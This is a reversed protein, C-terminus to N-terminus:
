EQPNTTPCNDDWQAFGGCMPCYWSKDPQAMQHNYQERDLCVRGCGPRVLGEEPPYPGDGHCIIAWPTEYEVGDANKHTM